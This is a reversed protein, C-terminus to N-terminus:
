LNNILITQDIIIKLHKGIPYKVKHFLAVKDLVSNTDHIPAIPNEPKNLSGSRSSWGSPTETNSEVAIRAVPASSPVHEQPESEKVSARPSERNEKYEPQPQFM